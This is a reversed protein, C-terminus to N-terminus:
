IPTNMLKSVASTTLEILFFSLLELKKDSGALCTRFNACNSLASVLVVICVWFLILVAFIKIPWVLAAKAPQSQQLIAAFKRCVHAPFVHVDNPHKTIRTSGPFSSTCGGSM